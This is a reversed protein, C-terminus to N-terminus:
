TIRAVRHHAQLDIDIHQGRGANRLAGVLPGAWDSSVEWCKTDSRWRRVAAPVSSRTSFTQVRTKAPPQRIAIRNPAASARTPPHRRSRLPRRWESEPPHDPTSANNSGDSHRNDQTNPKPKSTKSSPPSSRRDLAAPPGAERRFSSRPAFAVFHGYATFPM